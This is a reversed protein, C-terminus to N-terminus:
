LTNICGIFIPLNTKTDVIAYVFPHDLTIDLKEREKISVGAKDIIIATVAAAKTGNKDVEIYTKHLVKSFYYNYGPDKKFMNYLNANRRDFAKTVGMRKLTESMEIDYESKFEPMRITVDKDYKMNSLQKNFAVPNKSLESIYDAPKVGDPMEIGVFAYSGGKYYKKFGYAGNLEFYGGGYEKLMKVKKTSSDLNTFTYNKEIYNDEFAKAWQAEFAMANILFMVEDGSFEDIIHPIMKHTNKKVWKNMSKATANNFPAKYVEADYYTKAKKLYSKKVKVDKRNKIWISNAINWKVNKDSEMKNMLRCMTNNTDATKNGNFIIDEMQSRTKGRAGNEAMGFAYMISVPSILVNQNEDSDQISNNLLNISAATLRRAEAKKLKTGKCETAKVDSSLNQVKNNKRAASSSFSSFILIFALFLALTRKAKKSRISLKKM